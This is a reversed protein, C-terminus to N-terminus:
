RLSVAGHFMLNRLQLGTIWSSNFVVGSGDAPVSILIAPRLDGNLIILADGTM